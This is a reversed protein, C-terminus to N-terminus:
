GLSIVNLKQFTNVLTREASFDHVTASVDATTNDYYHVLRNIHYGDFGFATVKDCMGIAVLIAVLGTTPRSHILDKGYQIFRPDVLRLRQVPVTKAVTRTDIPTKWFRQKKNLPLNLIASRLWEVDASKFALMAHISSEGDQSACKLSMSEPYFLRVTTKSGVHEEYGQIPADNCRIVIDHGDINAGTRRYLLERSSGVVACSTGTPWHFTSLLQLLVTVDHRTGMFGYPLAVKNNLHTQPSVFPTLEQDDRYRVVSLTHFYVLTLILAYVFLLFHLVSPQRHLILM